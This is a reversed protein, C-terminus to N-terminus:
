SLFNSLVCVNDDVSKYRNIKQYIKVLVVITNDVEEKKRDPEKMVELSLSTVM